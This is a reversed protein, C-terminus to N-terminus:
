DRAIRRRLRITLQDIGALREHRLKRKIRPKRMQGRVFLVHDGGIEEGVKRQAFLFNLAGGGIEIGVFSSHPFAIPALDAVALRQESRQADIEAIKEPKWGPRVQCLCVAENAGLWENSYSRVMIWCTGTVMAAPCDIADANSWICNVDEEPMEIGFLLTSDPM